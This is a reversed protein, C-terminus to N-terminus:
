ETAEQRLWDIWQHTLRMEGRFIDGQVKSLYEALEEDSMQRIRDANTLPKHHFFEDPDYKVHRYEMVNGVSVRERMRYTHKEWQKVRFVPILMSGNTYIEESDKFQYQELFEDLTDPFTMCDAM